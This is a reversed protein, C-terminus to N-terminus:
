RWCGRRYTGAFISFSCGPQSRDLIQKGCAVAFRLEDVRGILAGDVLDAGEETDLAEM